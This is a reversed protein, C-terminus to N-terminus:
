EASANSIKGEMRRPASAHCLQSYLSFHRDAMRSLTFEREYRKRNAEGMLRLTGPDSLFQLLMSPLEQDEAFLGPYAEGLAEINGGLRTTVIAKSMAMAELLSLDFVVVRPCALFIDASMLERLIEEHSIAGLFKVENKLGLSEVMNNLSPSLLTERGAIRLNLRVGRNRLESVALLMRDIGKEPVHMAIAFLRRPAATDIPDMTCAPLDVRIGSYLVSVKSRVRDPFAGNHSEFLDRAGSSPFVIAKAFDFVDKYQRTMWSLSLDRSCRDGCLQTYERAMGGKSHETHVLSVKSLSRTALLFRHSVPIEHGHVVVHDHSNLLSLFSQRIRPVQNAYKWRKGLTFIERMIRSRSTNLSTSLLARGKSRLTASKESRRMLLNSLDSTSSVPILELTRTSYLYLSIQLQELRPILAQILLNIYGAPGGENEIPLDSTAIVIATKKM